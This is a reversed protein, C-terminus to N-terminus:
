TVLLRLITSYTRTGIYLLPLNRKQDIDPTSVSQGGGIIIAGSMSVEKIAYFTTLGYPVLTEVHTCAHMSKWIRKCALRGFSVATKIQHACKLGFIITIM